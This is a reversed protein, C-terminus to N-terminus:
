VMLYGGVDTKDFGVVYFILLNKTLVKMELFMCGLSDVVRTATIYLTDQEVIEATTHIYSCLAYRM